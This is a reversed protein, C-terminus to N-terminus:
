CVNTISLHYMLADNLYKRVLGAKFFRAKKSLKLITAIFQIGFSAALFYILFNYSVM